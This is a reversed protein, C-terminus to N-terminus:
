YCPGCKTKVKKFIFVNEGFEGSFSEPFAVNERSLNKNVATFLGRSNDERKLNETKNEILDLCAQVMEKMDFLEKEEIKTGISEAHIANKSDELEAAKKEWAKSEIYIERLENDTMESVKKIKLISSKMKTAKEKLCSMKIQLRQVAHEEKKVDDETRPKNAANEDVIEAIKDNVENENKLVAESLESM